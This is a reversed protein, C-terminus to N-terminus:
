KKLQIKKEELLTPSPYKELLYESIAKAARKGAGMASIVTASGTVIDGGAFIGDINTQLDRHTVIYGGKNLELNHISKPCIPNARTGIAVIIIDTDILYESNKIPIPSRRGSEDPEGLNMKIVEMQKVNGNEDEIFKTPNTLFLFEVGEEKAHHYEERRAPMENESRRYILIVKKAGLRLAVRASDMAVNGGGLVTVVNGAEIPTDYEPFRYAKMLNARTLFENASLVGNLNLGPVDIFIPLGAGVGIFFAKYGMEKLDELTLIKGIIMNYEFKVGLLKLSEIEKKVIEKPLRFEPIGYTLVGGGVHLAEYVTVDYGMRVLEGACTLGAPGSGIIAVKINKPAQCEPCEKLENNREWDTIFRELYGIAVPKHVMGLLCNGECQTEQPCVRGCIAPLLNYEKIFRSAEQFNGLKLLKIFQPINVNVPCGEVCLPNGCQLCRQTELKVMELTIGKPVEEFNTSRVIPDQEIMKQRPIEKYMKIKSNAIKKLIKFQNDKEEILKMKLLSHMASRQFLAEGKQTRVMVTSWGSDSGISGISIDSHEATLDGCLFCGYRGYKKIRKIPVDFSNGDKDNIIFRGNDINMKKIEEPLKQFENKLIELTKSYDFSEMCFIGIKYEINPYFPKNLPYFSIKKLAELICPTGVIAINKFGKAEHLIKLLHANSYKTGGSKLLDIENQALFPLPKLSSGNTLEGVVLALDILKEEFANKLITTVIGGDQAVKKIYHQTTQASYIEKYNNFEKFFKVERETEVENKMFVKPFFSRHCCAYCLGCNICKEEDIVLNDDVFKIANLPCISICLGCGSCIKKDRIVTVDPFLGKKENKKEIGWYFESIEGIFELLGLEKLYEINLIISEESVGLEKALKEKEIQKTEKIKNLIIERQKEANALSNIFDNFEKKTYKNTELIKSENELLVEVLPLNNEM